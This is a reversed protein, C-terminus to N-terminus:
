VLNPTIGCSVPGEMLVVTRDQARGDSRAVVANGREAAELGFGFGSCFRASTNM